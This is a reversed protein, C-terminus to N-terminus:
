MEKVDNLFANVRENLLNSNQSLDKYIDLMVVASESAEDAAQQVGIINSSVEATAASQPLPRM